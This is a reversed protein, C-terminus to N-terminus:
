QNLCRCCCVSDPKRIKLHGQFRIQSHHKVKGLKTKALQWVDTQKHIAKLSDTFWRRRCDWNRSLGVVKMETSEDRIKRVRGVDELAFTAVALERDTSISKEPVLAKTMAAVVTQAAGLWSCM